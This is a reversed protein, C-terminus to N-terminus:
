RPDGRRAGGDRIPQSVGGASRRRRPSPTVPMFSQDQAITVATPDARAAAAAIAHRDTGSPRSPHRALSADTAALPLDTVRRRGRRLSRVPEAYVVRGGRHPVAWLWGGPDPDREVQGTYQAPTDGTAM